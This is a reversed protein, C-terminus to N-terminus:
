RALFARLGEPDDTCIGDVGWEVAQQWEEPKNVTWVNVKLGDAKARQVVDARLTHFDPHWYTAGVTGMYEKPKYVISSDLVALKYQPAKRHISELIEHDFSSILITEPHKYTSLMAILDDDIGQYARPWNKIEINLVLKGDVLKLVDSLLPIREKAFKPDMRSGASFKLLQEYTLDPVSGTGDTTRSVDADHIVV